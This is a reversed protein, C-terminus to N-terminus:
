NQYRCQSTYVLYEYRDTSTKDRQVSNGPLEPASFAPVAIWEGHGSRWCFPQRLVFPTHSFLSSAGFSLILDM